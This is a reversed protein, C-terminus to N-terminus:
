VLPCISRELALVSTMQLLQSFPCSVKDGYLQQSSRQGHAQTAVLM